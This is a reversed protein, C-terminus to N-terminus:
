EEEIRLEHILAKGNKSKILFYVRYKGTSTSLNGIVYKSGEKGGEHLKTFASPKHNTYFKKMIQKAQAKSYVNENDLIVLEVSSNFYKSLEDYNGTKLSLFIEKPIDGTFATFAQSVIFLSIILITRLTKM